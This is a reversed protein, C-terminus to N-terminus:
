VRGERFYSTGGGAATTVWYGDDCYAGLFSVGNVRFNFIIHCEAGAGGAAQDLEAQTLDRIASDLGSGTM